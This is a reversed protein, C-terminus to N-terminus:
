KNEEFGNCEIPLSQNLKKDRYFMQSANDGSGVRYLYQYGNLCLIKFDLNIYRDDKVNITELVRNEFQIKPETAFLGLSIITILFFIKM